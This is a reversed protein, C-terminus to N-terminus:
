DEDINTTAIFGVFILLLIGGVALSPLLITDAIEIM